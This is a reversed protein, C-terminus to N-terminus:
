RRGPRWRQVRDNYFDAAFVAGGPGVAISSVVAFWSKLPGPVKMGFPGGWRRLYASAADFHQVRDDYGDAVYSGGELALDVDVADVGDLKRLRKEIGYAYFPCAMGAVELVYVENGAPGTGEEGAAQVGAAVLGVPLGLRLVKLMGAGTRFDNCVEAGAV